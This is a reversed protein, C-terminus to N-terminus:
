LTRNRPAGVNKQTAREKNKGIDESTQDHGRGINGLVQLKGERWAKQHKKQNRLKIGEVIKRKRNKMLIVFKGIGFGM